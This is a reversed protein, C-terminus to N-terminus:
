ALLIAMGNAESMVPLKIPLYLCPRKDARVSSLWKSREAECADSWRRVQVTLSVIGREAM